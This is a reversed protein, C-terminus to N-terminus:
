DAQRNLIKILEQVLRAHRKEDRILRELHSIISHDKFRKQCEELLDRYTVVSKKELKLMKNFRLSWLERYFRREM